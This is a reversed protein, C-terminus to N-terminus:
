ARYLNKIKEIDLGGQVRSPVGPLAVSERGASESSGARAEAAIDSGDTQNLSLTSMSMLLALKRLNKKKM